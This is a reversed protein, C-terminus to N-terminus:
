RLSFYVEFLGVEQANCSIAARLRVFLMAIIESRWFPSEPSHDTKAPLTLLFMVVFVSLTKCFVGFQSAGFKQSVLILSLDTVSNSVARDKFSLFLSSFARGGLPPTRGLADLILFDSLACLFLSLLNLSISIHRSTCPPDFM